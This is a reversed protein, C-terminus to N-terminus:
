QLAIPESWIFGYSSESRGKPGRLPAEGSALEETTNYESADPDIWMGVRIQAPKAEFAFKVAVIQQVALPRLDIGTGCFGV